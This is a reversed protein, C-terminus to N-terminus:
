DINVQLEGFSQFNPNFMKIENQDFILTEKFLIPKDDKLLKIKDKNIPLGYHKAGNISTFSEISDLSEEM